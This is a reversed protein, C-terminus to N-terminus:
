DNNLCGFIYSALKSTNINNSASIKCNPNYKILNFINKRDGYKSESRQSMIWSHDSQFIVISNPDHKHLIAIIDKIRKINCQYSNKYGELNYMGEFKKSKCNSDVFYPDHTELDHIFYFQPNTNTILEKNSIIFQKIEFIPNSHLTNFDILEKFFNFKSLRNVIQVIPSKELFTQLTYIDIYSKKKNKLCYEYNTKSCNSMYNGVWNFDYGLRKLKTLLKPRNEDKFFLPFKTEINSKLKLDDETENDNQYINEEMYFFSALVQPTWSYLNKTNNYHTYGYSQYYDKFAGLNIKYFNEFEDLPKMADMLFFYINPNKKFNSNEISNNGIINEKKSFKSIKIKPYLTGIFYFLNLIMFFIVFIRLFKIKDLFITLLSIILIILFLSIESSFHWLFKGSLLSNFFTKIFNYQFFFWVSISTFAIYYINSKNKFLFKIVFFIIIIFFFYISILIYFNDNIIQDIENSNSNIFEGWPILSFLLITFITAVSNFLSNNKILNHSNM